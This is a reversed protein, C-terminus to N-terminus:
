VKIEKFHKLAGLLNANNGLLSQKLNIKPMPYPIKEYLEEINMEIFDFLIKSASVGGGISIIEPDLIVQLNLIQRALNETYFNLLETATAEGAGVAEFFEIGDIEENKEYGMALSYKRLLVAVSNNYGWYRELEESDDVNVFSFEGASYNHGTVLQNNSIIGGGIGTGIVIAIGNSVNQLAGKWKEGLAACKGDNQISVPLSLIDELITQLNIKKIYDLAGGHFVFGREFDILGPMSIAVGAIPYYSFEACISKICTLLNELSKPTSINKFDKIEGDDLIRAYKLRTGGIDICIYNKM